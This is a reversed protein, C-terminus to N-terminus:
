FKDKQKFSRAYEMRDVLLNYCKKCHKNIGEHKNAVIKNEGCLVCIGEDVRKKTKLSEEKRGRWKKIYEKYRSICTNCLKVEEREKEKGCAKCLGNEEWAKKYGKSKNIVFEKNKEYFNKNYQKHKSWCHYCLLGKVANAQGCQICIGQEKLKERRVKRRLRETRSCERCLSETGTEVKGCKGCLGQLRRGKYNNLSTDM